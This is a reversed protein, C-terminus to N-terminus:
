GSSLSLSVPIVDVVMGYATCEVLWMVFSLNSTSIYELLYAPFAPFQHSFSPFEDVKKLASLPVLKGLTCLCLGQM